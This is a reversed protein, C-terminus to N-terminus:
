EIRWVRVGKVGNETVTRCTWRMNKRTKKVVSVASTLTEVAVGPVFFSDGADMADWPYKRKTIPVPVDHDVNFM